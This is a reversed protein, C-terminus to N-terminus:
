ELWKEREVISMSSFFEIAGLKTCFKEWNDPDARIKDLSKKYPPVTQGTVKMICGKTVNRVGLIVEGSRIGTLDTTMSNILEEIPVEKKGKQGKSSGVNEGLLISCLQTKTMSQRCPLNLKQCESFLEEKTWAKKGRGECPRGQYLM